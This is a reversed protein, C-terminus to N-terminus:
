VAAKTGTTARAQQRGRRAAERAPEGGAPPALLRARAGPAAPALAAGAALTLALAASHRRRQRRRRRRRGCVPAAQRVHADYLAVQHVDDAEGHGSAALLCACCV